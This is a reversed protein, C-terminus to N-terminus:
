VPRKKQSSIPFFRCNKEYYWLRANNVLACFPLFVARFPCQADLRSKAQRFPVDLLDNGTIKLFNRFFFSIIIYFPFRQKPFCTQVYLKSPIHGFRIYFAGYRENVRSPYFQIIYSLSLLFIIFLGNNVNFVRIRFLNKSQFTRGSSAETDCYLIKSGKPLNHVFRIFSM